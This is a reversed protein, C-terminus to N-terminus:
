RRVLYFRQAQAFSFGFFIQHLGGLLPLAALSGVSQLRRFKPADERLSLHTRVENYYAAYAKLIRRLHAEGFAM